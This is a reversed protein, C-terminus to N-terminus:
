SAAKPAATKQGTIWNVLTNGRYTPNSRSTEPRVTRLVVWIGIVALLSGTRM